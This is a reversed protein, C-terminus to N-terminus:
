PLLKDLKTTSQQLHGLHVLGQGHGPQDLQGGEGVMVMQLPEDHLTGPVVIHLCTYCKKM